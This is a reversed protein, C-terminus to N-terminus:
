ADFLSQIHRTLQEPMYPKSLFLSGSPLQELTVHKFGSTVIIKVPPWRERVFHALKVGDMSGPMDVDTFVLSIHPHAELLEIAEDANYADYVTFGADEIRDRTALRILADDEVVLIQIAANGSPSMANAETLM